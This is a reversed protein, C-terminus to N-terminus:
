LLCSRTLSRTAIADHGKAALTRMTSFAIFAFSRRPVITSVMTTAAASTWTKSSVNFSAGECPMEPAIRCAGAM